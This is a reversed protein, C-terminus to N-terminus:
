SSRVRQLLRLVFFSIFSFLAIFPAFLVSFGVVLGGTSGLSKLLSSFGSRQMVGAWWDMPAALASNPGEHAFDQSTFVIICIWAVLVFVGFGFSALLRRMFNQHRVNSNVRRRSKM